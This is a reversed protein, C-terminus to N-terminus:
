SHSYYIERHYVMCARKLTYWGHNQQSFSHIERHCGTFLIRKKILKSYYTSIEYWSWDSSKGKNTTVIESLASELNAGLWHSVQCKSYHHWTLLITIFHNIVASPFDQGNKGRLGYPSRPITKARAPPRDSLGRECERGYNKVSWEWVQCPCKNGLIESSNSWPPEADNFIRIISWKILQGSKVNRFEQCIPLDLCTLWYLNRTKEFDGFFSQHNKKANELKACPFDGNPSERRYIKM